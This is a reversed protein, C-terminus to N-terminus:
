SQHFRPPEWISNVIEKNYLVSKYFTKKIELTHYVKEKVYFDLSPNVTFVVSFLSAHSVFPLKQDTEYDNDKVPHDYHVKLFATFSMEPSLNKHEIYHEILVPLKLLQYLETTSVLYLSLLLISILKKM